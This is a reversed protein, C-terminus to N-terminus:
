ALFVEYTRQLQPVKYSYAPCSYSANKSFYLGRGWLGADSAYAINFGDNLYVRSPECDRTGHWLNLIEPM